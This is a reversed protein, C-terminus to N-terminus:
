EEPVLEPIKIRILDSQDNWGPEFDSFSASVSLYQQLGNKGYLEPHNFNISIDIYQLDAETIVWTM